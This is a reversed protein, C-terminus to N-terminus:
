ARVRNRAPRRGRQVKRPMPHSVGFPQLYLWWALSLALLVSEDRIHSVSPAEYEKKITVKRQSTM